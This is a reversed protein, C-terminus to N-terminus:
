GQRQDTWRAFEELLRDRVVSALATARLNALSQQTLRLQRVFETCDPCVVLHEELEGRHDEDLAGEMWETVLDVVDICAMLPANV